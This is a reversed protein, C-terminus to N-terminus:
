RANRMIYEAEEAATAKRASIIRVIEDDNIYCHVVVLINTQYSVGLMLYREETESHDPDYFLISDESYFVTQAEEFSIGHKRQNILDKRPDWNFQMM